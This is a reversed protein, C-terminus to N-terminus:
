QNIYFLLISANTAESFPYSLWAWWKYLQSIESALLWRSWYWVEDILWSFLLWGGYSGYWGITNGTNPVNLAGSYAGSTDLAWNIYIYRTTGNYVFAVHYWTSTSISGTSTIWSSSWGTALGFTLKGATTNVECSWATWVNSTGNSNVFIWQRSSSNTNIWGAITLEATPNLTLPLNTKSAGGNYSAANSIKGAVYSVSTDTWNYTWLSDNSNSDLKYYALLGTSLAM